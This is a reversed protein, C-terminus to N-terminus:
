KAKFIDKSDRLEVPIYSLSNTLLSYDTAILKQVMAQGVKQVPLVLVKFSAKMSFPLLKEVGGEISLVGIKYRSLLECIEDDSLAEHLCRSNELLVGDGPTLKQVKKRLRKKYQYPDDYPLSQEEFLINNNASEHILADSLSKKINISGGDSGHSREDDRDTLIESFLVVKRCSQEIYYDALLQGGRLEDCEVCSFSRAFGSHSAIVVPIGFDYVQKLAELEDASPFFWLVGQCKEAKLFKLIETASFTDMYPPVIHASINRKECESFAGALTQPFMVEPFNKDKSFAGLIALKTFGKGKFSRKVFTGRGRTSEILGEIELEIMAKRITASGLGSLKVLERTSPLKKGEEVEKNTIKSRLFAAVQSSVPAGSKRDIDLDQLMRNGKMLYEFGNFVCMYM